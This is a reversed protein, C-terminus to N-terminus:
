SLQPLDWFQCCFLVDMEKLSDFVKEKKSSERKRRRDARNLKSTITVYQAEGIQHTLAMDSMLGGQMLYEVNVSWLNM